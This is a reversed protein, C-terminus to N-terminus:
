PGGVTTYYKDILKNFVDIDLSRNTTKLRFHFKDTNFENINKAILISEQEHTIDYRPMPIISVGYCMLSFGISVDDVIVNPGPNNVLQKVLDSSMTFGSGSPFIIRNRHGIVAACCNKKPLTECVELYKDFRIFSSLNPRFVFDYKDLDDYFYKFVRLTKEYVTNISEKMKIFIENGQRIIPEEITPDCKYFYCDIVSPMTNMFRKWCIQFEKFYETDDSALILM